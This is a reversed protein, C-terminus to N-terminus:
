APVKAAAETRKGSVIRVVTVFFTLALPGLVLGIAGVAAIGGILSFFILAGHLKTGGKILIPKLVNDVLGVVAIGWIALFLAAWPHGLVFLLGALPLAVIATGVSPIFSAFLTVLGFFIPSPAKAIFYGITAVSAQVAGVIVSSGIVSRSTDRFQLLLETTRKEPLPSAEEIWDILRHGDRLLFYFAILMVVLSFTFRSAARLIGTVTGLAWRGGQSMRSDMNKMEAPLYQLLQNAAREIGEPLAHVLGQLGDEGSEKLTVRILGAVAIAQEVAFIALAAFPLLILMVTGLTFIVASLTRRRGMRNALRDHWTGLTGALVAAVLLPRWLPFFILAILAFSTFLLVRAASRGATKPEMM